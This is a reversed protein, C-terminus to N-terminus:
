ATDDQLDLFVKGAIRLAGETVKYGAVVQENAVLTMDAFAPTAFQARGIANSGAPTVTPISWICDSADLGDGGADPEFTVLVVDDNSFVVNSNVTLLKEPTSVSAPAGDPAGGAPALQEVRQQLVLVQNGAPTRKYIRVLGPEQVSAM